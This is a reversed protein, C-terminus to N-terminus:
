VATASQKVILDIMGKQAQATKDISQSALELLSMAPSPTPLGMAQKWVGIADMAQHTGVDISNKQLEALREVGKHFFGAFAAYPATESATPTERAPAEPPADKTSKPDNTM